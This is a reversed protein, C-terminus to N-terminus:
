TYLSMWRHTWRDAEHQRCIQEEVALGLALDGETWLLRRSTLEKMAGALEDESATRAIGPLGRKVNTPKLDCARYICSALSSVSFKRVTEFRSDTFMLRGDVDTYSLEVFRERHQCKWHDIQHRLQKYVEVLDESYEFNRQFYYAYDDLDFGSDQLYQRSLLVDYCENHVARMTLGFRDPAAQLPAFRTVVTENRSIPPILHYIAPIQTMMDLYHDERDGPLGYLVNYDIVV